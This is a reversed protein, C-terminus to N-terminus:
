QKLLVIKADGEQEIDVSVADGNVAAFLINTALVENCIYAQNSAIASKIEETTEITLEIKDTVDLGSDKRLNQIRNVVERAIGEQRLEDSLHSDLAVTIGGES